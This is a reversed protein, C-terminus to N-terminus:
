ALVKYNFDSPSYVMKRLDCRYINRYAECLEKANNAFPSAGWTSIVVVMEPSIIQGNAQRTRKPWVRFVRM